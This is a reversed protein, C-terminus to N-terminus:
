IGPIPARKHETKQYQKELKEKAEAGIEKGELYDSNDDYSIGLEDEDTQGEWLGASPAKDLVSKPVGLHSALQRVQRKNLSSLPTIDVAGDGWKTYFGTIAESAHDTGVVLLNLDFALAYQSM